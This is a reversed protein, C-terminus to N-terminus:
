ISQSNSFCFFLGAKLNANEDADGLVIPAPVNDVAYHVLMCISGKPIPNGHIVTRQPQPVGIANVVRDVVYAVVKEQSPVMNSLTAPCDRPIPDQSSTNAPSVFSHSRKSM